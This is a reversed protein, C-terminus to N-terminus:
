MKCGGAGCDAAVDNATNLVDVLVVTGDALEKKKSTLSNKYYSSKLGLKTMQLFTTLMETSPITDGEPIRRWLDASIGQDTFKQTIGYLDVQDEIAVDWASQYQGVLQDSDPAAWRSIIGDDSKTLTTDRVPYISNAQGSAKSSSEGPMHAVLCSFRMGQQARLQERVGDWDYQYDQTHVENLAAPARDMPLWGEPYRTRHIWPANGRERGLKLSAQMLFYLHRENLRHLANKGEMTDYRLGQRAMWTAVGMMGVGANMRAKSTFGIHPLEYHAKHICIDIMLLSYYAVDSYEADDHIESPVTAAINCMAVEPEEKRELVQLVTLPSNAVRPEASPAQVYTDGVDLEIATAVPRGKRGLAQIIVAESASHHVEGQDTLLRIYGVDTNAYLDTIHDYGRQPLLIEQCLNSSPIPDYFPTNYNVTDLWTQYYRGTEWGENLALLIIERASFYDKVFLPDNEYQEYLREFEAPDDSFMAQFLDPATHCNFRFFKEKRAAKRALHKTVAQSYDIGRIKREEVSMPNQLAVLVEAEPDYASWTLTNAGGRGNQLNAEVMAKTARIYPLKGQHKISGQRVPDGASRTNLFTGTGASMYTMTYAIHLGVGISAASDNNTYICCSAFGALPTGLNVLNPTPANLKGESFYKYWKAVDQMRREVPLTEALAMACRMYSFQPTEHFVKNIRDQIAYKKLIFDLRFHPYTFDIRHDILAQAQAYEVDSYDMHYMFGKAQLSRHLEQVTPLQTDFVDKHVMPAYLRGAMLYHPWDEGRMTVEILTEQLRRSSIDGNLENVTDAVISAWDVRNGLYKGGWEGWRVLKSPTWPQISGDRKVINKIM